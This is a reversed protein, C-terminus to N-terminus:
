LKMLDEITLSSLEPTKLKFFSAPIWFRNDTVTSTKNCVCTTITNEKKTKTTNEPDYAKIGIDILTVGCCSSKKMANVVYDADITLHHLISAYYQSAYKVKKCTVIEGITM